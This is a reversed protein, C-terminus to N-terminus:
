YINLFHRDDDISLSLFFKIDPSAISASYIEIKNESQMSYVLSSISLNALTIPEIQVENKSLILRENSLIYLNLLFSHLLESSDALSKAIAYNKNFFSLPSLKQGAIRAAFAKFAQLLIPYITNEVGSSPLHDVTPPRPTITSSNDIPNTSSPQSTVTM